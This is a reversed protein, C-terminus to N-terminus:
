GKEGDRALDSDGFLALSLSNASVDVAMSRKLSEEIERIESGGGGSGGGSLMDM